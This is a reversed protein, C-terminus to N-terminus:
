PGFFSVRLFICTPTKWCGSHCSPLFCIIKAKLSEIFRRMKMNCPLPIDWTDWTSKEIQRYRSASSKQSRSPKPRAQYFTHSPKSAPQACLLYRLGRKDQKRQAPAPCPVAQLLSFHRGLSSCVFFFFSVDKFGSVTQPGIIWYKSSSSSLSIRRGFLYRWPDVVCWAFACLGRVGIYDLNGTM